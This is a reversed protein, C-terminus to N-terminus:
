VYTGVGSYLKLLSVTLHFKIQAKLVKSKHEKFDLHNLERILNVKLRNIM